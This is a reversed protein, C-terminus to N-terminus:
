QAKAVMAALRSIRRAANKRHIIGKRAASALAREAAILLEKANGESTEVATRTKKIATRVTSKANRNRQRRKLSQKHRKIASQHNAM